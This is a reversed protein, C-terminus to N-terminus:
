SFNKLISFLEDPTPHQEDLPMTAVVKYKDSSPKSFLPASTYYEHDAEFIEAFAAGDTETYHHYRLASEKPGALGAAAIRSQQSVNPPSAHFLAPSAIYAQGAQMLLQKGFQELLPTELDIYPFPRGGCRPQTIITHSGPIVQIAGNQPTTDILPVWIVMPTFRSEDLFSPDQHMQVTGRPSDAYKLNFNGLLLHTDKFTEHLARDFSKSIIKSVADRYAADESMITSAFAPKGMAAPLKNYTHRLAVVEAPNLFDAVVYGNREFDKQLQENKFLPRKTKTIKTSTATTM